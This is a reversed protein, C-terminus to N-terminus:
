TRCMASLSSTHMSYRMIPNVSCSEMELIRKSLGKQSRSTNINRSLRGSSVHAFMFLPTPYSHVEENDSQPYIHCRDLCAPIDYECGGIVCMGGDRGDIGTSFASVMDEECEWFGPLSDLPFPGERPEIKLTTM